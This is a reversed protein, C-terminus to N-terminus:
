ARSRKTIEHQMNEIKCELSEVHDPLDLVLGMASLTVDLHRNLRLVRRVRDLADTEFCPEPERVCPTILEYEVMERIVVQSTGACYAIERITLVRDNLVPTARGTSTRRTRATM